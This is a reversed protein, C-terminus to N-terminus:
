MGEVLDGDEQERCQWRRLEEAEIEEVATLLPKLAASKKEGKRTVVLTWLIAPTDNIKLRSSAGMFAACTTLLPLFLYEAPCGVAGAYTTLLEKTAPTTCKSLDMAKSKAAQFRSRFSAFQMLSAASMITFLPSTARM